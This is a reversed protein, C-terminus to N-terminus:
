GLSGQNTRRGEWFLVFIACLDKFIRVATACFIWPRGHGYKLVNCVCGRHGLGGEADKFGYFNLEKSIRM